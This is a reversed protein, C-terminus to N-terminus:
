SDIQRDIILSSVECSYSYSGCSHARSIGEGAWRTARFQESRWGVTWLHCFAGSSDCADRGAGYLVRGELGEADAGADQGPDDILPVM